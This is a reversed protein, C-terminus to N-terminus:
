DCVAVSPAADSAGAVDEMTEVGSPEPTLDDWGMAGLVAQALHDWQADTLNLEGTKAADDLVSQNVPLDPGVAVVEGGPAFEGVPPDTVDPDAVAPVPPPRRVPPPIRRATAPAKPDVRESRSVPGIPAPSCEEVFSVAPMQGTVAPARVSKDTLVSRGAPRSISVSGSVSVPETKQLKSSAAKTEVHRRPDTFRWYWITLGTLCAAVALLLVVITQVAQGSQDNAAAVLLEM